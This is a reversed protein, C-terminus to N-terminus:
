CEAFYFKAQSISMVTELELKSRSCRQSNIVRLKLNFPLRSAVVERPNAIRTLLATVSFMGGQTVTGTSLEVILPLRSAVVERPNAIPTLLATASFM